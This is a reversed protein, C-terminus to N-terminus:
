ESEEGKQEHSRQAKRDSAFRAYDRVDRYYPTDGCVHLYAKELINWWDDLEIEPFRQKLHVRALIPDPPTGTSHIEEAIYNEAAQILEEETM